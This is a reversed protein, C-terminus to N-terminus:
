ARKGRRRQWSTVPTMIAAFLVGAFVAWVPGGWVGFLADLIVSLSGFTIAYYAFVAPLSWQRIRGRMFWM